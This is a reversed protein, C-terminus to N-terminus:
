VSILTSRDSTRSGAFLLVAELLVNQLEPREDSDEVSDHCPICRFISGTSLFSNSSSYFHLVGRMTVDRVTV